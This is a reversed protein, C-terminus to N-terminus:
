GSAARSSRGFPRRPRWSSHTRSTSKGAFRGGVDARPERRRLVAYQVRQGLGFPAGQDGRRVARRFRAWLREHHRPRRVDQAFLGRLPMASSPRGRLRHVPWARRSSGQCALLTAERATIRTARRGYTPWRRPVPARPSAPYTPRVWAWNPLVSVIIVGEDCVAAGRAPAPRANVGLVRVVAPPHERDGAQAHEQRGDVAARQQDRQRAEFARQVGRQQGQHPHDQGVHDGARHQQQRGAAEGVLDPALPEYTSPMASNM